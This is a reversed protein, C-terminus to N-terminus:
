RRVEEKMLILMDLAVAGDGEGRVLLPNIEAEAVPRGDLVALSSLASAAEAVAALDGRPLARFGRLPALGRVEEIMERADHPQIPALRTAADRYVESLVGGVGLTITPGVQPDDRYGLLVEALGREMAQVEYGDIRAHPRRAALTGAMAVLAARLAAADGIGLAVGGAETKHAIDPSLVKLVVPYAIADPLAVEGGAGAEPALVFTRAQAIRLAHLVAGPRQASPAQVARALEAAPSLAACPAKPARWAFLAAIADACAEPTRFAAVGAEQLRVASRDAQPTMFVAVPKTMAEALSAIPEIARDPRFQASSGVVAVVADCAASGILEELVAGYTLANTGSLTLDILPANAIAIGREALRAVTAAGPPVAEIGRLGLADVLLAGGGGTTSMVCARRASLPRRGRLLAPMELLTELMQVHVIANERLFTAVAASTGAIAGTHSAALQQGLASRGLTFAVMPKGAAFARRAVAALAEPDRITELFLTIVDTQADEILMEALDAVGLDVENGVSLITSFAIGRAQGRSLLAGLLSGSQSLLGIRGKALEPLELVENASLALPAHTNIIGLSNPGLVRLGGAAAAAAVEEQLVRGDAGTEAFGGSLITACRVGAAACQRVAEPVLRAPLMIYAHEVGGPVSAVDPYAREGFIESRSPNIPHIRGRYGHKRLYRQPLSTHKGPDGSAGILAVSQPQLLAEALTRQAPTCM